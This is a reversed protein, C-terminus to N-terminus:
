CCLMATHVVFLLLLTNGSSDLYFWKQEKSSSPADTTAKDTKEEKAEATSAEAHGNSKVESQAVAAKGSIVSYMSHDKLSVFEAFVSFM